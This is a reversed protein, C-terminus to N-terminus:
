SHKTGDTSDPQTRSPTTGEKNAPGDVRGKHRLYGIVKALLSDKYRGARKM